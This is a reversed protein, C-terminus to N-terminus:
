DLPIALFLDIGCDRENKRLGSIKSQSLHQFLPRFRTMLILCSKDSFGGPQQFEALFHMSTDSLHLWLSSCLLIFHRHLQFPCQLVSTLRDLVVSFTWLIHNVPLEFWPFPPKKFQSLIARARVIKKPLTEAM